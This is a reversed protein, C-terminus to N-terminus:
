KDNGDEMKRIIFPLDVMVPVKKGGRVEVAELISLASSDCEKWEGSEAWIFANEGKADVIAEFVTGIRLRYVTGPVNKVPSIGEVIDIEASLERYDHIIQMLRHLAESNDVTQANIESVLYDLSGRIQKAALPPLKSIMDLFQNSKKFVTQRFQDQLLEKQEINAKVSVIESLLSDNEEDIEKILLSISDNDEQFQIKKEAFRKKYAEFEARDQNREKKVEERQQQVNKLERKIRLIDENLDYMGASFASFSIIYLWFLLRNFLDIGENENRM